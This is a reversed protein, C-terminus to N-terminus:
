SSMLVSVFPYTKPQNRQGIDVCIKLFMLRINSLDHFFFFFKKDSKNIKEPLKCALSQSSKTSVIKLRTSDPNNLVHRGRCTEVFLISYNSLRM